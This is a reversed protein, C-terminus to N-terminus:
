IECLIVMELLGMKAIGRKIPLRIEKKQQLLRRPRVKVQGPRLAQLFPQHFDLISLEGDVGPLVVEKAEEELLKEQPTFIKIKMKASIGEM